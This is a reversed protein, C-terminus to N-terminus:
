VERQFPLNEQNGLPCLMESANAPLIGNARNVGFFQVDGFPIEPFSKGTNSVPEFPKRNAVGAGKVYHFLPFVSESETGIVAGAEVNVVAQHHIVITGV